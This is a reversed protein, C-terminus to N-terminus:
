APIARSRVTGRRVGSLARSVTGQSIGFHDAIEQQSWGDAYYFAMLANRKQQLFRNAGRGKGNVGLHSNTMDELQIEPASLPDSKEMEPVEYGAARLEKEYGAVYLEDVLLEREVDSLDNKPV